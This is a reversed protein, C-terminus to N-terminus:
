RGELKLRPDGLDVRYMLQNYNYRPVAVPNGSFTNVYTGEFYIVRGGEQDFMPHQVPNYFDMKEHSAIKRALRYPGEPRDAETFWVEGLMSEKGMIQVFVMVWKKRYENWCVSGGHAMVPSGTEVDKLRYWGEGEKMVGLKILEKEENERLPATDRKWGWVLKGSADRELKTKGKEYRGGAVLPTYAEYQKMDMVSKWDARVRTMPYPAPFYFYEQGGVTHRVPQGDPFLPGKLDLEKVKEFVDREDNYVAMARELAPALGKSRTYMCVMRERGAEDKLVMFGGAWKVGDGPVDMMPRSFGDKGVFYTLDVGVGPDLGGEGPMESVAGAMAFHGLPGGIRGTDGWFWRLKGRYELCQVSDQGTVDANVLPKRIPVPLGAMVSDRYVGVGTIRYLREAINVRKIKLETTGGEKTDVIEGKAGFVDHPYEYGQSKIGFWVKKGLLGPEAFAVVGNSDTWYKVNDTTELEVLPVGRGTREDVVKIVHMGEAGMACRSMAAAVLVWGALAMRWM